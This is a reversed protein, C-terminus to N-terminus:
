NVEIQECHNLDSTMNETRLQLVQRDSTAALGTLPLEFLHDQSVWQVKGLDLFQVLADHPYVEYVALIDVRYSKTLLKLQAFRTPIRPGIIRPLENVRVRRLEAEIAITTQQHADFQAYISELSDMAVIKMPQEMRVLTPLDRFQPFLIRLGDSNRRYGTSPLRPGSASPRAPHM